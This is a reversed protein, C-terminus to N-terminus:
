IFIDLEFSLICAPCNEFGMIVRWIEIGFSPSSNTTIRIQFYVDSFVLAERGRPQLHSKHLSGGRAM